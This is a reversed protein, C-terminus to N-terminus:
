EEATSSVTYIKYGDLANASDRTIKAVTVPEDGTTRIEIQKYKQLSGKRRQRILEDTAESVWRRFVGGVFLKIPTGIIWVYLPIFVAGWGCDILGMAKLALLTAQLAICM